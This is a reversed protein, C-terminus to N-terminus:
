RRKDPAVARSSLTAPAAHYIGFHYWGDTKGNGISM